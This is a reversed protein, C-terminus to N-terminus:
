TREATRSRTHGVMWGVVEKHKRGARLVFVFGDKVMFSTKWEVYVVEFHIQPTYLHQTKSAPNYQSFSCSGVHVYIVSYQYIKARSVDLLIHVAKWSMGFADPPTLIKMIVSPGAPTFRHLSHSWARCEGASLPSSCHNWLWMLSSEGDVQLQNDPPTILHGSVGASETERM